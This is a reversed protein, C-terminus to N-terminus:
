VHTGNKVEFKMGFKRHVYMYVMIDCPNVWM